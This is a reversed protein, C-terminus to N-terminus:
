TRETAPAHHVPVTENEKINLCNAYYYNNWKNLEDLAGIHFWAPLQRAVEPPIVNAAWRVRYKKATKLIRQIAPPLNKMIPKWTQLFIDMRADPHVVPTKQAQKAILAHAFHAWPPRKELPPTTEKRGRRNPRM